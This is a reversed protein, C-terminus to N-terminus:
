KSMALHRSSVSVFYNMSQRVSNDTEDFVMELLGTPLPYKEFLDGFITHIDEKVTGVMLNTFKVFDDVHLLKDNVYLKRADDAGHSDTGHRVQNRFVKDDLSWTDALKFM